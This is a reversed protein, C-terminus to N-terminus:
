ESPVQEKSWKQYRNHREQRKMLNRFEQAALEQLGSGLPPYPPNIPWYPDPRQIDLIGQDSFWDLAVPLLGEDKPNGGAMEIIQSPQIYNIVQFNYLPLFPAIPVGPYGARVIDECPKVNMSRLCPALTPHNKKPDDPWGWWVLRGEFDKVEVTRIFAEMREGLCIYELRKGLIAAM